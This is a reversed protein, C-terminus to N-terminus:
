VAIQYPGEVGGVKRRAQHRVVTGIGPVSVKADAPPLGTM